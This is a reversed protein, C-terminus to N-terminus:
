GNSASGTESDAAYALGVGFILWGLTTAVASQSIVSALMAVAAAALAAVYGAGVSRTQASRLLRSAPWAVITALGVFLLAGVVGGDVARALYENHVSTRRAEAAAGPAAAEVFRPGESYGFGHGFVPAQSYSSWAQSWIRERAVFTPTSGSLRRSDQAPSLVIVGVCIAIAVIGFRRLGSNSVLVLIALGAAIMAIVGTRSGTALVAAAAGALTGLGLWHDRRNSSLLLPPVVFAALVAFVVAALNPSDQSFPFVSRSLDYISAHQAHSFLREVLSPMGLDNAAWLWYVGAGLCLALSVRALSRVLDLLDARKRADAVALVGVVAALPYSLERLFSTQDLGGADSLVTVLGALAATLCWLVYAVVLMTPLRPLQRAALSRVVVVVTLLVVIQAQGISLVPSGGSATLSETVVSAVLASTALLMAPMHRLPLRLLLGAVLVSVALIAAAAPAAAILFGMVIAVLAALLPLGRDLSLPLGIRLQRQVVWPPRPQSM